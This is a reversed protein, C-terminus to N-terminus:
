ARPETISLTKATSAQAWSRRGAAVVLAAVAGATYVVETRLGAEVVLLGGIAAVLVAIVELVAATPTRVRDSLELVLAGVLMLGAGAQGGGTVSALGIWALGVLVESRRGTWVGHWLGLLVVPLALARWYEIGDPVAPIAVRVLLLAAVPATWAAPENRHLPWLGSMAWAALLLAPALLREAAPSWPLDPLSAVALGEPGAITRMLWWVPVLMLTLVPAAPLRRLEPTRTAVWGGVAALVAGLFVLDAWPGAAALLAGAGIAAPGFPRMAFPAPATSPKGAHAGLLTLLLGLGAIAAAAVLLSFPAGAGLYPAASLGMGIGGVAAASAGWREAKMAQLAALMALLLAVLFLAGEVAVFGGPLATVPEEPGAHIGTLALGTGIAAGAALARARGAPLLAAALVLSLFGLHIVDQVSAGPM